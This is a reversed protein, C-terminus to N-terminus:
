SRDNTAAFFIPEGDKQVTVLIDVKYSDLKVVSHPADSAGYFFPYRYFQGDDLHTIPGFMSLTHWGKSMPPTEYVGTDTVKLSWLIPSQWVIRSGKTTNLNLNYVQNVTGLKVWTENRWANGEQLTLDLEYKSLSDVFLELRATSGEVSVYFVIISNRDDHIFDRNYNFTVTYAPVIVTPPKTVNALEGLPALENLRNKLTEFEATMQTLASGQSQISNYLSYNLAMLSLIMAALLVVGAAQKGSLGSRKLSNTPM